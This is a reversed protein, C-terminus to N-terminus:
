CFVVVVVVVKQAALRDGSPLASLSEPMQKVATALSDEGCADDGRRRTYSVQLCPKDFRL